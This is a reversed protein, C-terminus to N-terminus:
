VGRAVEEGWDVVSLWQCRDTSDYLCRYMCLRINELVERCNKYVYYLVLVVDVVM